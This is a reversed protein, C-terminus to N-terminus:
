VIRQKYLGNRQFWRVCRLIWGNNKPADNFDNQLGFFDISEDPEVGLWVALDGCLLIASPKNTNNTRFFFFGADDKLYDPNHLIKYTVPCKTIVESVDKKDQLGGIYAHLFSRLVENVSESFGSGLNKTISLRWFVSVWLFM